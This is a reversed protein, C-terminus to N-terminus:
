PASAPAISVSGSGCRAFCWRKPWRIPARCSEGRQLAYGGELGVKRAWNALWRKLPPGLPPRASGAQIKEWVRPVAFFLHPRVERLNEAMKELSEAFWTTAGIGMPGHVTVIQEAIHSLPLYSLVCDGPRLEFDRVLMGATWILNHHSLMVAKPPGTTGSTYILTCLDDPRQAAIRAELADESAEAGRAMLKDWSLAGPDNGEM